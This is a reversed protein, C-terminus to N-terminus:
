ARAEVAHLFEGVCATAQYLFSLVAKGDHVLGPLSATISQESVKLFASPHLEWLRLLSGQIGASIRGEWKRPRGTSVTCASDFREDGSKLGRGSSGPVILLPAPFRKKGAFDLCISSDDGVRLAWRGAVSSFELRRGDIRGQGLEERVGELLEKWRDAM